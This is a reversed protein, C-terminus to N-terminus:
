QNNQIVSKLSRMRRSTINSLATYRQTNKALQAMELELDVGNDDNRISANDAEHISPQIDQVTEGQHNIAFHQSNTITMALPIDNSVTRDIAGRSHNIAHQLAGEFDVSRRKYGPTDANALNSSITKQRIALGDLAKNIVDSTLSSTLDM